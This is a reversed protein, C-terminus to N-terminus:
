RMKETTRDSNKKRGQKKVADLLRRRARFLVRNFHASTLGLSECIREKPEHHLYFRRLLQRDRQTRIAAIANCLLEYEEAHLVRILQGPSPDVFEELPRGEIETQQRLRKRRNRAMLLTRATQRLFQGLAGPDDLGRGRLRVLVVAFTDQHLDEAIWRNRTLAELMRMMSPGYHRVLENEAEADGARIRRVLDSGKEEM